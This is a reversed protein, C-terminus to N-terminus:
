TSKTVFHWNLMSQYNKTRFLCNCCSLLPQLPTNIIAAAQILKFSSYILAILAIESPLLWAHEDNVGPHAQFHALLSVAFSLDPCTALQGWMVSGLILHYPKDIMERKESDTKPSIESDLNIGTPLPTNQPTIHELHFQNLIYELYPWQTLWITGLNLDQQVLALCGLLHCAAM